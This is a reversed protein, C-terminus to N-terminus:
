FKFLSFALRSNVSARAESYGKVIGGRSPLSRAASRRGRARNERRRERRYRPARNARSRLVFREVGSEKSGYVHGHFACIFALLKHLRPDGGM